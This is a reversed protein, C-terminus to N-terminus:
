WCASEWCSFEVLLRYRRGVDTCGAGAAEEYLVRMLLASDLLCQTLDTRRGVYAGVPACLACLNYGTRPWRYWWGWM